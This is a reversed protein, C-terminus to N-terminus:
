GANEWEMDLASTCANVINQIRALRADFGDNADVKLLTVDFNLFLASTEAESREVSCQARWAGDNGAAFFRGAPDHVAGADVDGFVKAVSPITYRALYDVASGGAVVEAHQFITAQVSAWRCEPFKESFGADIAGMVQLVLEHDDPLVYSFEISLKEAHLSVANRGGFIAYKAVVDSLSRGQVAFDESRVVLNPALVGHVMEFFRAPVGGWQFLPPAFSVNM